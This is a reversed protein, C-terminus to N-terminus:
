LGVNYGRWTGGAADVIWVKGAAYSLSFYADFTMGAGTLVATDVRSGLADWSSLVGNSYTLYCANPTVAIGRNQPYTNESNLSGFGSLTVYGLFTGNLAWRSVTGAIMAVFETSTGNFVVDSQADLIGGSLTVDNTFVGPATQVRIVPSAYERAYVPAVGGKTFVSRFDIGPSYTNILGGAASYQAYRAGFTNNGSSSWFNTGDWTLTMTAGGLADPFTKSANYSELALTCTSTCVGAACQTGAGCVVGCGGCNYNDTGTNVCAGNCYTQGLPCDCADGVGDYNTDKQTPNAKTPCNDCADGVGDSDMDKQDANCVKPCNDKRDCIGDGDRDPDKPCCPASLSMSSLNPDASSLEAEDEGSSEVASMACGMFGLLSLALMPMLYRM